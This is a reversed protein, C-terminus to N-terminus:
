RIIVGGAEIDYGERQNHNIRTNYYFICLTLIIINIFFIMLFSYIFISLIYDYNDRKQQTINYRLGGKEFVARGRLVQGKTFMYLDRGYSMYNMFMDPSGCSSTTPYQCKKFTGCNINSNDSLPTDSVGDDEDCGGDGWIHRLGLWHGIEHTSTRDKRNYVENWYISVINLVFGDTKPSLTFDEPFQAYGMVFGEDTPEINVIWINLNFDPNVVDSGGYDSFKINECDPFISDSYCNNYGNVYKIDKLRFNIKFNGTINKWVEPTNVIDENEMNFDKNLQKIIYKYLINENINYIRGNYLKYNKGNNYLIHFIIPIEIQKYEEINKNENYHNEIFKQIHLENTHNIPYKRHLHVKYSNTLSVFFIFLYFYM